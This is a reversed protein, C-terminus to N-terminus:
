LTGRGEYKPQANYDPKNIWKREYLSKIISGMLDLLANPAEAFIQKRKATRREIESYGGTPKNMIEELKKFNTKIDEQCEPPIQRKLLCIIKWADLNKDPSRSAMIINFEVILNAWIGQWIGSPNQNNNQRETM